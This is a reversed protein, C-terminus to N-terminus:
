LVLWKKAKPTKPEDIVEEDEYDDSEAALNELEKLYEEANPLDKSVEIIITAIESRMDAPILVLSSDTAGKNDRKFRIPGADAEVHKWGTIALKLVEYNLTNLSINYEGDKSVRIAADQLEALSDLGISDFLVTFPNETGKESLPVYEFDTKLKAKTLKLAM